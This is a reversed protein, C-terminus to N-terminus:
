QGRGRGSARGIRDVLFPLEEGSELRLTVVLWGGRGAEQNIPVDAPLTAGLANEPACSCLFMLSLLQGLTGSKFMTSITRTNTPRDLFELASPGVAIPANKRDCRHLACLFSPRSTAM